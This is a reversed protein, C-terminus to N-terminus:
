SGIVTVRAGDYLQDAGRTAVVEGARLGSRVRVLGQEEGGIQLVRLRAVGRDVVFAHFSNTNPDPIIASGPVFVGPDAKGLEIRATAFMQASVTAGANPITAEVVTARTAPDLTANVATVTGTVTRGGLAEVVATVRQGRKVGAAAMEPVLMRLKIPDLRMVTAVRAGPGVYEGVTVARDTVFGNFPSRIVLDGIAKDAMAVRSKAEVVAAEGTAIAQRSTEVESLLQDYVTRSIDGTKVLAAYRNATSSALRHRERAQGLGAEMQLLSARSQDARLRADREDLRALVTGATVRDGIDVPTSAVKGAGESAVDSVEDAIFSGTVEVVIPVDRQEAMATSVEVAAAEPPADAPVQQGGGCGATAVAVTLLTLHLPWLGRHRGRVLAPEPM